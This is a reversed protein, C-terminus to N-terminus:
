NRLVLPEELTRLHQSLSSKRVKKSYNHFIIFLIIQIHLSLSCVVQDNPLDTLSKRLFFLLFIYFATSMRRLTHYYLLRAQSFACSFRFRLSSLPSPSAVSLVNFISCHLMQSSSFTLSESPARSLGSSLFVM